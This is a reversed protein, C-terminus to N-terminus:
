KEDPPMLGKRALYDKSAEYNRKALKTRAFGGEKPDPPKLQQQQYGLKYHNYATEIEASYGMTDQAHNIAGKIIRTLMPDALCREAVRGAYALTAEELEEDPYVRNVYGYALAEEANIYRHEFLIEKAKRPGLDWPASFYQVLGPLFLANESAFVIDMASAIIWGGFICYGRVMAITPKPLNRWRLSNEVCYRRQDLYDNFVDYKTRGQAVQFAKQEDTGIDHGASFHPGAGSLVVAGVQNDAAAQAFAEDMEERMQWSQANYFQPRNLIIRAVPGPEYLIHEFAM